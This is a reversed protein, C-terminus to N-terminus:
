EIKLDDDTSCLTSDNCNFSSINLEIESIELDENDSYLFPIIDEERMNECLQYNKNVKIEDKNFPKICSILNINSNFVGEDNRPKFYELNGEKGKKVQCFHMSDNQLFQFYINKNLDFTPKKKNILIPLNNNSIKKTIEDFNKEIENNTIINNKNNKKLYVNYLDDALKSLSDDEKQEEEKFEILRKKRNEKNKNIIINNYNYDIKKTENNNLNINIKNYNISKSINIDNNLINNNKSLYLKNNNNKNINIYNNNNFNNIKNGQKINIMNNNGRKNNLNINNKLNYNANNINSNM